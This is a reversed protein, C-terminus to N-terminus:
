VYTKAAIKSANIITKKAMFNLRQTKTLTLLIITAKILKPCTVKTMKRIKHLKFNDEETEKSVKLLDPNYNGSVNLLDNM